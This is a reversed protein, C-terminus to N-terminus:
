SKFSRLHELKSINKLLDRDLYHVKPVKNEALVKKGYVNLFMGKKWLDLILSEVAYLDKNLEDKDLVFLDFKYNEGTSKYKEISVLVKTSDTGVNEFSVVYDLNKPVIRRSIPKSLGAIEGASAGEIDSSPIRDKPDKIIILLPADSVLINQEDIILSYTKNNPYRKNTLLRSSVCDITNTFMRLLISQPTELIANVQDRIIEVLENDLSPISLGFDPFVYIERYEENRVKGERVLGDWVKTIAFWVKAYDSSKLFINSLANWDGYITLANPKGVRLNRVAEKLWDVPSIGLTEQLDPPVRVLYEQGMGPLSQLESDQSKYIELGYRAAVEQILSPAEDDLEVEPIRWVLWGEEGKLIARQHIDQFVNEHNNILVKQDILLVDKHPGVFTLLSELTYFDYEHAKAWEGLIHKALPHDSLLAKGILPGVDIKVNINKFTSESGQFTDYTKLPHILSPYASAKAKVTGVGMGLSRHYGEIGSYEESLSTEGIPYFYYYDEFVDSVVREVHHTFSSPLYLNYLVKLIKNLDDLSDEPIESLSRLHSLSLPVYSVQQAYKKLANLVETEAELNYHCELLEAKQVHVRRFVKVIKGQFPVSLTVIYPTSPEGLGEGDLISLIYRHLIENPNTLWHLDVKEMDGKAKKIDDKTEEM